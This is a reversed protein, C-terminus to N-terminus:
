PLFLQINHSHSVSVYTHTFNMSVDLEPLINYAAHSFNTACSIEEGFAQLQTGDGWDIIMCTGGGISEYTIEFFKPEDQFSAIVIIHLDYLANFNRLLVKLEYKSRHITKYIIKPLM